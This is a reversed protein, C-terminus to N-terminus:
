LMYAALVQNNYFLKKDIRKAQTPKECGEWLFKDEWQNEKEVLFKWGSTALDILISNYKDPGMNLAPHGKKRWKLGWTPSILPSTAKYTHKEGNVAEKNPESGECGILIGGLSTNTPPLYHFYIHGYDGDASISEQQEEEDLDLISKTNVYLFPIIGYGGLPVNMGWHRHEKLIYKKSGIFKSHKLGMWNKTEHIIKSRNYPLSFDMKDINDDTIGHTAAARRFVLRNESQAKNGSLSTSVVSTLDGIEDGTLLWNWFSDDRKSKSTSKSKPLQIIVRSGHSLLAAIPYTWLKWEKSKKSERYLTGGYKITIFIRMLIQRLRKDGPRQLTKYWMECDRKFQSEFGFDQFEKIIMQTCAEIRFKKREKSKFQNIPSSKIENNEDNQNELNNSKSNIIQNNNSPSYISEVNMESTDDCQLFKKIKNSSNTKVVIQNNRPSNESSSSSLSFESSENRELILSKLKEIKQIENLNDILSENLVENMNEQIDENNIDNKKNKSNLLKRQKKDEEDDEITRDIKPFYDHIIVYRKLM